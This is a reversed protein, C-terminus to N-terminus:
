CTLQTHQQFVTFSKSTQTMHPIYFATSVTLKSTYWIERKLSFQAWDTFITQYFLYEQSSWVGPFFRGPNVQGFALGFHHWILDTTESSQLWSYNLSDKLWSHYPLYCVKYGYDMKLFCSGICIHLTSGNQLSWYSDLFSHIFSHILHKFISFVSRGALVSPAAPLLGGQPSITFSKLTLCCALLRWLPTLCPCTGVRPIVPYQVATPYIHCCLNFRLCKFLFTGTNKSSRIKCLNEWM